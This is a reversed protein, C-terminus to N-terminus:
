ASECPSTESGIFYCIYFCFFLFVARRHLYRYRGQILLDCWYCPFQPGQLSALSFFAQRM